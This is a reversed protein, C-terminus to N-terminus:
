NVGHEWDFGGLGDVHRPFQFVLHVDVLFTQHEWGDDMPEITAAALDPFQERLIDRVIEPTVVYDTPGPEWFGLSEPMRLLTHRRAAGCAVNVTQFIAPSQM